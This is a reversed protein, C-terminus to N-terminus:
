SADYEGIVKAGLERSLLDQSSLGTDDADDDDHSPADAADGSGEASAQAASEEAVAAM